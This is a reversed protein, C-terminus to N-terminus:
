FSYGLSTVLGFDNNTTRTGPPRNDYDDYLSLIVTFDSTVKYSLSTDFRARLRGSDTLSPFALLTSHLSLEPKSFRYIRWDLGLVGEVSFTSAQTDKAWEENVALGAYGALNSDARQIFSKGGTIGAQLRGDIGLEQMREFSGLGMVFRGHEMLYRDQYDVRLRQNNGNGPNSTIDESASLTKISSPSRYVTDLRFSSTKINTSKAYNLGVSITGRLRDRFRQESPGMQSVDELALTRPVEEGELRLQGDAGNLTGYVKEGNLRQVLFRHTSSIGSVNPWEISVTGMASTKVVLTGFELSVIECTIRDGNKFYVVDDKERAACLPAALLLWAALALRFTCGRRNM